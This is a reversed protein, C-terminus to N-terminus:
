RRNAEVWRLTTRPSRWVMWTLVIGVPLLLLGWHENKTLLYFGLAAAAPPGLFLGGYGILVGGVDNAVKAVNQIFIVGFVLLSLALPFWVFLLLTIEIM